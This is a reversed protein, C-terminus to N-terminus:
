DKRIRIDTARVAGSPEVFGSGSVDRGRKIDTCKGHSYETSPDTSVVMRDVGITINPCSGFITSVEGSFERRESPPPTPTPGPAPGPAPSPTPTPTPAPAPVPEAPAASQTVTYVQDAIRVQGSRAGAGNSAVALGVTGAGNGASGSSVSIWSAASVASWACGNIVTVGVSLAGGGFAISDAQRSLRFSCPAAAQNVSVSSAGVVIAGARASPVPNPAVTYAVSAEGQGSTSGVSLWSADSRISWTCERETGIALSGQGGSSTFSTPAGSANIQCKDATPAPATLTTTTKSCALFTAAGSLALVLSADLIRCRM